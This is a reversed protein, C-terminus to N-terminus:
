CSGGAKARRSRAIFMCVGKPEADLVPLVTDCVVWRGASLAVTGARRAHRCRVGDYLSDVLRWGERCGDDEKNLEEVRQAGAGAMRVAALDCVM